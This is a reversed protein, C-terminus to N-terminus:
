QFPTHFTLPRKVRKRRSILRIRKFDALGNEADMEDAKRKKMPSPQFNVRRFPNEGFQVKKKWPSPLPKSPPPEVEYIETIRRYWMGCGASRYALLILM